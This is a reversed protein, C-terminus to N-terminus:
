PPFTNARVPNGNKADADFLASKDVNLSSATASAVTDSRVFLSNWARKDNANAKRSAAVKDKHRAPRAGATTQSEKPEPRPFAPMVHM